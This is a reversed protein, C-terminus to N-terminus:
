SPSKEMSNNILSALRGFELCLRRRRGHLLSAHREKRESLIGNLHLVHLLLKKQGM